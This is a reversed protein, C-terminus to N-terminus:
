VHIFRSLVVGASLLLGFQGHLRSSGPLAKAMETRVKAQWIVRSTRVLQFLALLSLLNLIGKGQTVMLAIVILFPATVLLTWEWQGFRRDFRTVPTVKGAAKDEDIDRLDNAVLIATVTCGVAISLWMVETVFTQTQVYYSGLAMVPGMFLFVLIHGLGISGLPKPGAAYFYAVAASALCVVLLPWGTIIILYLGIITAMGFCVAAGLKVARRSLLGLAIVKYPAPLKNNGEPRADDSFEDVLNAGAQVLLSAMLVLVFILFRFQGQRFALASGVLVPTVSASLTFPRAAQYWVLLKDRM